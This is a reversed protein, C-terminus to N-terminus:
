KKVGGQKLLKAVEPVCHKILDKVTRSDNLHKFLKERRWDDDIEGAAIIYDTFYEAAKEMEEDKVMEDLGSIFEEVQQRLRRSAHTAEVAASMKAEVDWDAGMSYRLVLLRGGIFLADRLVDSYLGYPSGPMEVFRQFRRQLWFPIRTGATASHGHEDSVATFPPLNILEELTAAADFSQELEWDPVQKKKKRLPM